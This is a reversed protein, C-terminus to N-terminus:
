TIPDEKSATLVKLLIQKLSEAAPSLTKGRQKVIVITRSFKPKVLPRFVFPRSMMAQM